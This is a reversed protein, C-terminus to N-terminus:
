GWFITIVEWNAWLDYLGIGVLLLGGIANIGRAHIAVQRTIWRQTAGSLFLVCGPVVAALSSPVEM